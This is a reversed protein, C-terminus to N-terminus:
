DRLEKYRHYIDSVCSTMQRYQIVNYAGKDIPNSVSMVISVKIIGGIYLQPPYPTIVQDGRSM